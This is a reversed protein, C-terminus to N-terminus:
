FKKHPYNTLSSDVTSVDYLLEKRIASYVRCRLLFHLTTETELGCKCMPDVIDRFDHRFKHESLHSFILRPRLLLKFGKTFINCFVSNEKPRVFSFIIIGLSFETRQLIDICKKHKM